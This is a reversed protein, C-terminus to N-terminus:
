LEALGQLTNIPEYFPKGSSHVAAPPLAGGPNIATVQAGWYGLCEIESESLPGGDIWAFGSAVFLGPCGLDRAMAELEYPIM